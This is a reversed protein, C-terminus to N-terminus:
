KGKEASNKVSATKRDSKFHGVITEININNEELDASYQEPSTSFFAIGISILLLASVGFFIDLYNESEQHTKQDM